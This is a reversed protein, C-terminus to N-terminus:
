IGHALATGLWHAGSWPSCATPNEAWIIWFKTIVYMSLCSEAMDQASTLATRRTLGASRPELKSSSTPLLAEPNIKVSTIRGSCNFLIFWNTLSRFFFIWDMNFAYATCGLWIHSLYSYGSFQFKYAYCQDLLFYLAGTSIFNSIIWCCKSM